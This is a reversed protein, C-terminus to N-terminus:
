VAIPRLTHVGVGTLILATMSAATRIQSFVQWKSSYTSWIEEAQEMNEPPTIEVLAENMPINVAMTLVMGGSFYIVAAAAFAMAARRRRSVLALAVTAVLVIPTGFFAPALVMNRVSANMAQMAQIRLAHIPPTL